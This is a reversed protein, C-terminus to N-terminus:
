PPIKFKSFGEDDRLWEWRDSSIPWVGAYNAATDKFQGTMRHSIYGSSTTVYAVEPNSTSTLTAVGAADMWSM